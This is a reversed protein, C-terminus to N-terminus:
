SQIGHRKMREELAAMIGDIIPKLPTHCVPCEELLMATAEARVNLKGGSPAHTHARAAHTKALAREKKKRQYYEASKKPDYYNKKKQAAAAAERINRKPTVIVNGHTRYWHMSYAQPSDWPKQCDPCIYKGNQPEVKPIIGKSKSM